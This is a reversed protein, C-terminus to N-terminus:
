GAEILQVSVDAEVIANRAARNLQRNIARAGGSHLGPTDLLLIQGDPRTVIGLIRHRTTQPKPGAISFRQGVLVNVLTSKGVNPRGVIAATGCRFDDEPSKAPDASNMAGVTGAGAIAGPCEGGGRTRGCAPQQRAGARASRIRRDCMRSRVGQRPGCGLDGATWIGAFGPRTGAVVGALADERGQGRREGGARPAARVPRPRLRSM